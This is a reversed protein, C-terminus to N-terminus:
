DCNQRSRFGATKSCRLREKHVVATNPVFVERTTARLIETLSNRGYLSAVADIFLM